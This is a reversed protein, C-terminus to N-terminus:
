GKRPPLKHALDPLYTEIIARTEDSVHDLDTATELFERLAELDAPSPPNSV